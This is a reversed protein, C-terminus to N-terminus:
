AGAPGFTGVSRALAVADPARRPDSVVALGTRMGIEPHRQQLFRFVAWPAGLADHLDRLTPLPLGHTDLQWAPFRVGRKAGEIGLLEGRRRKQHVAERSIGLREAMADSSLMDPGALLDAAAVEGREYARKLAARAAAPSLEAADTAAQPDPTVADTPFSRVILFGSKGGQRASPKVDLTLTQGTGAVSSVSRAVAALIRRAQEASLGDPVAIREPGATRRAHSGPGRTAAPKPASRTQAATIM